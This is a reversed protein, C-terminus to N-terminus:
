MDKPDHIETLTAITSSLDGDVRIGVHKVDAMMAKRASIVSEVLHKPDTVVVSVVIEGECISRLAAAGPDAVYIEISGETRMLQWNM